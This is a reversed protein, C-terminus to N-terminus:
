NINELKEMDKKRNKRLGKDLTTSFRKYVCVCVCVCVCM